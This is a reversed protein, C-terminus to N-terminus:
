ILGLFIKNKLKLDYRKYINNCSDKSELTDIIEVYENDILFELIQNKHYKNNYYESITFIYEKKLNPYALILYEDFGNKLIKITTYNNNFTDLKLEYSM